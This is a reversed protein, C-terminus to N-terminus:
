RVVATTIGATTVQFHAVVGWKKVYDINIPGTVTPQNPYVATIWARVEAVDILADPWTFDNM